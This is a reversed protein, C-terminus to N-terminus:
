FLVSVDKKIEVIYNYNIKIATLGYCCHLGFKYFMFTFHTHLIFLPCNNAYVFSLVGDTQKKVFFVRNWVHVFQQCCNWVMQIFHVRQSLFIVTSWVNVWVHCDRRFYPALVGYHSQELEPNEEEHVHELHYRSARVGATRLQHIHGIRVITQGNALPQLLSAFDNLGHGCLFFEFIESM